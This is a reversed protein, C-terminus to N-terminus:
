SSCVAFQQSFLGLSPVVCSTYHCPMAMSSLFTKEVEASANRGLLCLVYEMVTADCPLTIREDDSTFGFEEQSM